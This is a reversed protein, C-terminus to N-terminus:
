NGDKKERTYVLGLDEVLEVLVSDKSVLRIRREETELVSGEGPESLFYGIDVDAVEPNM